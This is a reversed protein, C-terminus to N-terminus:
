GLPGVHYSARSAAFVGDLPISAGAKYEGPGTPVNIRHGTDEAEGPIHIIAHGDEDTVASREHYAVDATTLASKTIPASLFGDALDNDTELWTVVDVTVNAIARGDLAATVNAHLRIDEQIGYQPQSPALQLDMEPEVHITKQATATLDGDSVTVEVTYTGRQEYSHNVEPGTATEGDGLNWDYSLSAEDAFGETTAEFTCDLHPCTAVIDVQASPSPCDEGLCAYRTERDAAGGSDAFAVHVTDGLGHDVGFYDLLERNGDCAIGDMCIQGVYNPEETIRHCSVAASECTLTQGSQNAPAQIQAVYVNWAGSFSSSTPDGDSASGYWAIALEDETGSLM